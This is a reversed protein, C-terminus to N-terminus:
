MSKEDLASTIQEKLLKLKEDRDTVEKKTLQHGEALQKAHEEKLAQIRDSQSLIVAELEKEKRAALEKYQLVEDTSEELERQLMRYEELPVTAACNVLKSQLEFVLAETKTYLNFLKNHEEKNVSTDKLLIIEDELSVKEQCVEGYKETVEALEGKLKREKDAAIRRTALVLDEKDSLTKQLRQIEQKLKDITCADQMESTNLSQSTVLLGDEFKRTLEEDKQKKLDVISKTLTTTHKNYSGLEPTKRKEEGKHIPSLKNIFLSRQEDNKPSFQKLLSKEISIIEACVDLICAGGRDQDFRPSLNQQEATNVCMLPFSEVVVRNRCRPTRPNQLVTPPDFVLTPFVRRKSSGKMAHLDGPLKLRLPPLARKTASFRSRRVMGLPRTKVARCLVMNNKCNDCVKSHPRFNDWCKVPSTEANQCM